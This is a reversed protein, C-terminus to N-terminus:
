LSPERSDISAWESMAAGSAASDSRQSATKATARATRAERQSQPGPHLAGHGPLSSALRRGTPRPPRITLAGARGKEHRQVERSVGLLEQCAEVRLLELSGPDDPAREDDLRSGPRALRADDTVPHGVGHGGAGDIRPPDEDDREGVLGGTLHGLTEGPEAQGADGGPREVGRREGLEAVEPRTAM